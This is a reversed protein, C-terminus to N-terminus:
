AHVARRFSGPSVGMQHRFQSSFHAHSRFGAQRGIDGVSVSTKALMERARELRKRLVYEYPSFGVTERFARAFHFPSLEAAGALQALSVPMGDPAELSSAILELVRRLRHPSLGGKAPPVQMQADRALVHGLRMILEPLHLHDITNRWDAAVMIQFARRQIEADHDQFRSRITPSTAAGVERSAVSHPMFLQLVAAQGRISCCVEEDPGILSFAGIVSPKSIWVGRQLHQVKQTGSLNVVFKILGDGAIFKPEADSHKWRGITAHESESIPVSILASPRGIAREMNKLISM